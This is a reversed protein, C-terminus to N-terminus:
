DERLRIFDAPTHAAYTNVPRYHRVVLFGQQRAYGSRITIAGAGGRLLTCASWTM